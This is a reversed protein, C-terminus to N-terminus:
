SIYADCSINRFLRSAGKYGFIPGRILTDFQTLNKAKYCQEKYFEPKKSTVKFFGQSFSEQLFSLIYRDYAGFVKDKINVCTSRVDFAGSISVAARVGCINQCDRHAGLHRLLHNSGLSYGIAYIQSDDGFIHKIAEISETIPEVRSYDIVELDTSREQWNPRM